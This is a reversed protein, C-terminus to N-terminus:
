KIVFRSVQRAQQAADISLFYIGPMLSGSLDIQKQTEGQFLRFTERYVIRGTADSVTIKGEAGTVLNSEVIFRGQNPNPYLLFHGGAGSVHQVKDWRIDLSIKNSISSDPDACPESSILRATITDEVRLDTWAEGVWTNSNSAGAIPIGNKRWEFVPNSGGNVPIATFTILNGAYYVTQVPSQSISVSPTLTQDCFEYAGIDTQQGMIRGAGRLDTTIASLDPTASSAYFSSDGADIAPSGTILRYDSASTDIFVPWSASTGTPNVSGDEIYTLTSGDGVLVNRALGILAVNADVDDPYNGAIITNRIKTTTGADYGGGGIPATNNVITVNTLVVDTNTGHCGMGGGNRVASNRSLLVNTLIGHSDRELGFGGYDNDATNGSFTVNTLVPNCTNYSYMGGGNNDAHNGTFTVDNLTANSKWSYLGGGDEGARNDRFTVGNLIAHSSGDNDMGGGSGDATNNLFLVNTLGPASNDNYIGGGSYTTTNEEFVVDNLIADSGGINNMGGGGEDDSDASNRGFYVATIHPSSSENKMGGGNANDAFNHVFASYTIELSGKYNYMGGGGGVEADFSKVINGALVIRTYTGEASDNYVGGGYHRGILRGNVALGTTGNANGGTITFGDLMFGRVGTALIVHYTNDSTDNATGIDGSLTTANTVHIALSDASRAAFSTETGAFGGCITVGTPIVFAYDRTNASTGDAAVSPYYTGKAVWISDGSGAAALAPQLDAFANTWSTGNQAGSAGQSVYWRAADADPFATLLFLM